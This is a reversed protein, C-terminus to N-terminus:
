INHQFILPKEIECQGSKLISPARISLFEAFLQIIVVLDLVVM